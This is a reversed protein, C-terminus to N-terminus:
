VLHGTDNVLRVSSNGDAFYDVLRRYLKPFIVMDSLDDVGTPRAATGVGVSEQGWFGAGASRAQTVLDRLHGILPFPMSTCCEGFALGARVRAASARM